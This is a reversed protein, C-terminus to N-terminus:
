PRPPSAPAGSWACSVLECDEPQLVLSTQASCVLTSGDYFGVDIGAPVVTAGRNCVEVRLTATDGACLYDESPGATTDGLANANPDGPVNQRFNNLLPDDWNNM